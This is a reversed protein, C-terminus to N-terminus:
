KTKARARLVEAARFAAIGYAVAVNLTEKTGLMPIAVRDPCAALVHPSVGRIENGVVLCPRAPWDFESIPISAPGNEVAVPTWGERSLEHVAGLERARYRWPVAQEAGLATKAIADRPPCGTVGALVLLVVAGILATVISGLFGTFMPLDLLRFLFGGVFAGLVGVIIDGILGFGRGKVIIGALWGAIAGVILFWVIHM